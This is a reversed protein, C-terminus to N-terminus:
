RVMIRGVSHHCQVLCYRLWIPCYIYAPMSPSTPPQKDVRVVPEPDRSDVGNYLQKTSLCDLSPLQLLINGM